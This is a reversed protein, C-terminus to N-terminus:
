GRYRYELMKRGQNTEFKRKLVFGNKRYFYNASENNEADTELTIYAYETFDTQAKLVDILKSGVGKSKMNPEIGISALEVYKEERKVEKPKLFASVLRIFVKPKRLFAGFSYWAFLIIRKKIMYKYLGSFDGSYALFGVPKEGEFAVLIGSDKYETYSRYMLKLFGKGMFTLFFGKFTEIHISVVTNIINKETKKIKRIQIM